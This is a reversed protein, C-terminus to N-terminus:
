ISTSNQSKNGFFKYFAFGGILVGFDIFMRNIMRSISFNTNSFFAISDMLLLTGVVFLLIRLQREKCILVTLIGTFLGSFISILYNMNTPSMLDYLGTWYGFRVFGEVFLYAGLVGILFGLGMRSKNKAAQGSDMM